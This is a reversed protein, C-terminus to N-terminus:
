GNPLIRKEVRMGKGITNYYYWDLRMSSASLNTVTMQAPAYFPIHAYVQNSRVTDNLVVADLVFFHTINAIVADTYVYNVASSQAEHLTRYTNNNGMKLKLIYKSVAGSNISWQLIVSDESAHSIKLSVILHGEPFHFEPDHFPELDCSIGSMSLAILAIITKAQKNM